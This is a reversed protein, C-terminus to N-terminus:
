AAAQRASDTVCLYGRWDGGARPCHRVMIGSGCWEARIDALWRLVGSAEGHHATVRDPHGCWDRSV